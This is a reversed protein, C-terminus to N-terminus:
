LRSSKLINSKEINHINDLTEKRTKKSLNEKTPIWISSVPSESSKLEEIKLRNETIQQNILIGDNTLIHEITDSKELDGETKKLHDKLEEANRQAEEELLKVKFELNKIIDEPKISNLM